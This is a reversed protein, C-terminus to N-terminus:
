DGGTLDGPTDQVLVLSLHHHFVYSQGSLLHCLRYSVAPDVPLLADVVGGSLREEKVMETREVHPIWPATHAVLEPYHRGTHFM